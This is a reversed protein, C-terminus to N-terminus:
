GGAAEDPREHERDERAVIPEQRGGVAVARVVGHEPGLATGCRCFHYMGSRDSHIVTSCAPCQFSPM